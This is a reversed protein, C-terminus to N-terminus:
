INEYYIRRYYIDIEEFHVHIKYKLIPNIANVSYFSRPVSKYFGFHMSGGLFDSVDLFHIVNTPNHILELFKFCLGSVKLRHFPLELFNIYTQMDTSKEPHLILRLM